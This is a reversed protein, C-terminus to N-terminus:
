FHVTTAILAVVIMLVLWDNDYHNCPLNNPLGYQSVHTDLISETEDKTLVDWGNNRYTHYVKIADDKTIPYMSATALKNRCSMSYFQKGNSSYVIHMVPSASTYKKFGFAQKM